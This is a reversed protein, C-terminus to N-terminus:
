RRSERQATIVALYAPEILRDVILPPPENAAVHRRVAAYAIDLVAFRTASLASASTRGFLRRALEDLADDAQRKLRLAEAQMEPPWGGGLFDERRHLLMIRAAALHARATHPLSLAAQLGAAVPDREALAAVFNDQFLAANRLWLRGLVVDRSAFRHYISGAPAGLAACIAAITAASPGADAVLGGTADLIQAESFRAHRGMM